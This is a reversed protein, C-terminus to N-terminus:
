ATGGNMRAYIAATQDMSSALKSPLPIQMFAEDSPRERWREKTPALWNDLGKSYEGGQKQWDVTACWEAHSEGVLAIEEVRVAAPVSKAITRLLKVIQGEGCRRKKPHRSYMAKATELIAAELPTLVEVEAGKPPLPTNEAETDTETDAESPTESANCTVNRVKERYKRVRENSLDSVYQRGTWNHPKICGNETEIVGAKRLDDVWRVVQRRELHLRWVLDDVTPVEGDFMGALCLCNIWFKFLPGNLRQVKPDTVVETYLRIWDRKM